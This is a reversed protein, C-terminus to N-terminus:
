TSGDYAQNGRQAKKLREHRMALKCLYEHTEDILRPINKNSDGALARDSFNPFCIHSFPVGSETHHINPDEYILTHVACQSNAMM